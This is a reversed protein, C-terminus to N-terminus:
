IITVNIPCCMMNLQHNLNHKTMFFMVVMLTFLSCFKLSVNTEFKAGNNETYSKYIHVDFINNIKKSRRKDLVVGIIYRKVLRSSTNNLFKRTAAVATLLSRCSCTKTLLNAAPMFFNRYFTRQVFLFRYLSSRIALISALFLQVTAYYTKRVNAVDSQAILHAVCEPMNSSNGYGNDHPMCCIYM